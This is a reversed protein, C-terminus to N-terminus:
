MGKQSGERRAPPPPPPPPRQVICLFSPFLCLFHPLSSSLFISMARLAGVCDEWAEIWQKAGRGGAGGNM